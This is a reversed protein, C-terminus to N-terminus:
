SEGTLDIVPGLTILPESKRKNGAIRTSGSAPLLTPNASTSALAPAAIQPTTAYSAGAAARLQEVTISPAPYPQTGMIANVVDGYKPGMIVKFVDNGIAAVLQRAQKEHLVWQTATTMGPLKKVMLTHPSGTRITDFTVIDTGLRLRQELHTRRRQVWTFGQKELSSLLFQDLAVCDSCATSCGLKRVNVPAAQKNKLVHILHQEVILRIFGDFPADTLALHRKALTTKLTAVLPIYMSAYANYTPPNKQFVLSFLLASMQPHEVRFCLEVANTLRQLKAQASMTTASGYYPVPPTNDWQPLAAAVCQSIMQDLNAKLSEDEALAKTDILQLEKRLAEMMSVWFDYGPTTSVLKPMVSEKFFKASNASLVSILSPVDAATPRAMTQITKLLQVQYWEALAVTETAAAHSSVTQLFELRATFSHQHLVIGEFIHQVAGFSFVRWAQVLQDTTLVGAGTDANRAKVIKKFMELDKWRLAHSALARAADPSMYPIALILDVLKKEDESPQLSTSDKLRALAYPAGGGGKVVLSLEDSEHYLVLATRRYYHEVTASENGTYGEYEKDDPEVDDFADAPVLSESGLSLTRGPMVSTGDLNVINNLCLSSDFVENMPPVSGDDDDDDSDDYADYYCRGYRGRKGWSGYGYDDASGSVHYQLSALCVKFGLDSAVDRLHAVLHADEGKLCASGRTLSFHSYQHQLLYAIIDSNSDYLGKSWMRLIGRVRAVATAMTPVVPRSVVTNGQILNYSLALRYGSEVPKVEHTVDTYWALVATSLLSSSAYDFVQAKNGHSVHVQGGTYRSPLIIIVTAFMGPAKETDQHPLFHSGPEYLLLKHLECRPAVSTAVVGLAECVSKSVVDQMFQDWIPNEFAVRAPEIEWTDRVDKDVVTREGHGFPAQTAVSTILKADRESLPSGYAYSGKFKFDAQFADEIDNRLDDADGELDEEESGLSQSAASTADVEDTNLKNPNLLEM